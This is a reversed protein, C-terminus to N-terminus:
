SRVRCGEGRTSASLESSSCYLSTLTPEGVGLQLLFTGEDKLVADGKYSSVLSM